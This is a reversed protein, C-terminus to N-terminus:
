AHMGGAHEVASPLRPDHLPVLAGGRLRGAFVAIWLGGLALPAALDM